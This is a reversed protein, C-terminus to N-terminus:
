AADLFARLEGDVERVDLTFLDAIAEPLTSGNRAAEWIAAEIEGRIDVGTNNVLMKIANM